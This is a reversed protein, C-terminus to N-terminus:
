SYILCCLCIDDSAVVSFTVKSAASIDAQVVNQSEERRRTIAARHKALAAYAMMHHTDTQTQTQSGDHEYM